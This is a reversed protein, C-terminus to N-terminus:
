GTENRYSYSGNLLEKLMAEELPERCVFIPISDAMPEQRIQQVYSFWSTDAAHVIIMDALLGCIAERIRHIETIYSEMEPRIERIREQLTVLHQPNDGVLIIHKIIRLM